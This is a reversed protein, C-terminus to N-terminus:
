DEIERKAIKQASTIKCKGELDFKLTFLFASPSDGGGSSTVATYVYLIATDADTWHRMKFVLRILSNNGCISM